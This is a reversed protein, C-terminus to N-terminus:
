ADARAGARMATPGAIFINSAKFVETAAAPPTIGRSVVLRTPTPAAIRGRRGRIAPSAAATATAYTAHCVLKRPIRSIVAWAPSKM